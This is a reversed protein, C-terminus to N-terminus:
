PAPELLDLALRDTFLGTRLVDRGELFVPRRGRAGNALYDITAVRVDGSAPPQGAVVLYGTTLPDNADLVSAVQEASLTLLVVQNHFPLAEELTAPDVEGQLEARVSLYNLLAVDAGTVEVVREAVALSLGQQGFHIMDHGYDAAGLLTPADADAQGVTLEVARGTLELEDWSVALQGIRWRSDVWPAVLQGHGSVDVETAAPDFRGPLVALGPRLEPLPGSTAVVVLDADLEPLTDGDALEVLALSRGDIVEERVSTATPSANVVYTPRGARRASIADIEAQLQNPGVWAWFGTTPHRPAEGGPGGVYLVLVDPERESGHTALMAVYGGILLLAALAILVRRTVM